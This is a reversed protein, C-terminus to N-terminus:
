IKKAESVIQYKQYRQATTEHHDNRLYVNGDEDTYQELLSLKEVMMPIVSLAFGTHGQELESIALDGISKWPPPSWKTIFTREERDEM